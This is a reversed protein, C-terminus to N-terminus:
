SSGSGPSRPGILAMWLDNVNTNTPGSIILDGLAHFFAYTDNDALAAQPDLGGARARALTSGDSVAGAADTPGDTGDTGLSAVLTQPLGALPAAAGLALEQNRGGRGHGRVTVTTEGGMM